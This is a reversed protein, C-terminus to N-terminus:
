SSPHVRTARVRAGLRLLNQTGVRQDEAKLLVGSLVPLRRRCLPNSVVLGPPRPSSAVCSGGLLRRRGPSGRRRPSRAAPM